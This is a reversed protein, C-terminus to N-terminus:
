HLLNLLLITGSLAGVTVRSVKEYNITGDIKGKSDVYGTGEPVVKYMDFPLIYDKEVEDPNVLVVGNSYRRIFLGCDPKFYQEIDEKATPM